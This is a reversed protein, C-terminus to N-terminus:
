KSDDKCSKQSSGESFMSRYIYPSKKALNLKIKTIYKTRRSMNEGKKAYFFSGEKTRFRKM